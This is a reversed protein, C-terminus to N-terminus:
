VTSQIFEIEFKCVDDDFSTKALKRMKYIYCNNYSRDNIFLPFKDGIKKVIRDYDAENAECYWTSKPMTTVPTADVRRKGEITHRITTDIEEEVVSRKTAPIHVNDFYLQYYQAELTPTVFPSSAFPKPSYQSQVTVYKVFQDQDANKAIVQITDSVTQSVYGVATPIPYLLTPDNGVNARVSVATNGASIEIFDTYKNYWVGNYSDGAASYVRRHAPLDAKMLRASWSNSTIYVGISTEGSITLPTDSTALMTVKKNATTFSKILNPPNTVLPTLKHTVFNWSSANTWGVSSGFDAYMDYTTVPNSQSQAALNGAYQHIFGDAAPVKVVFVAKSIDYYKLHHPLDKYARDTFRVDRFDTTFVDSRLVIIEAHWVAGYPIGLGVLRHTKFTEYVM